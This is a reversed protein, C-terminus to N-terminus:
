YIIGVGIAPFGVAKGVVSSQAPVLVIVYFEELDCLGPFRADLGFGM